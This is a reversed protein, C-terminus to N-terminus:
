IIDNIADLSKQIAEQIDKLKLGAFELDGELNKGIICYTLCACVKEVVRVLYEYFSGITLLQYYDLPMQKGTIRASAKVDHCMKLVQAICTEAAKETKVDVIEIDCESKPLRSLAGDELTKDLSGHAIICRIGYFLNSLHCISEYNTIKVENESNENSIWTFTEKQAWDYILLQVQKRVRGMKQNNVKKKNRSGADGKKVKTDMLMQSFTKEIDYMMPSLWQKLVHRKNCMAIGEIVAVVQRDNPNEKAHTNFETCMKGFDPEKSHKQSDSEKTPKQSDSVRTPDQPDLEKPPGQSDLEKRPEQTDSESPEQSDALEKFINLIIDKMKSDSGLMQLWIKLDNEQLKKKAREKMFRKFQELEIKNESRFRFVIDLSESVAEFAYKEFTVVSM